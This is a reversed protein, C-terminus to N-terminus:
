CVTDRTHLHKSYECVNIKKIRIKLDYFLVLLGRIIAIHTYHYIQPPDLFAIYIRRHM